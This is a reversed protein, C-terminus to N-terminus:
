FADDVAMTLNDSARSKEPNELLILPREQKDREPQDEQFNDGHCYGLAAAADTAGEGRGNKDAADASIEECGQQVCNEPERQRLGVERQYAHCSHHGTHHM